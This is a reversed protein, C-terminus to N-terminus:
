AAGRPQVLALANGYLDEIIAQVGWPMDEVERAVTVGREKLAAVTARCDDTALVWHSQHGILDRLEAQDPGPELLM